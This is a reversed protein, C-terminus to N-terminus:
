RDINPGRLAARSANAIVKVVAELRHSLIAMEEIAVSRSNLRIRSSRVLGINLPEARSRCDEGIKRRMDEGTTFNPGGTDFM